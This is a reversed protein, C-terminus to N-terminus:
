IWSTLNEILWPSAAHISWGRGVTPAAVSRSKPEVLDAHLRTKNYPIQLIGAPFLRSVKHVDFQGAGEQGNDGGSAEDAGGLAQVDAL